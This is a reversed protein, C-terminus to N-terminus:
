NWLWRKSFVFLLFIAGFVIKLIGSVSAGNAAVLGIGSFLMVVGFSVFLLGCVILAIGLGILAGKGKQIKNMVVGKACHAKKYKLKKFTKTKL